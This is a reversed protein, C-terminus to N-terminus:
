SSLPLALPTLSIPETLTEAHPAPSRSLLFPAALTTTSIVELAGVVAEEYEM